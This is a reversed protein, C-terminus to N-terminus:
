EDSEGPAGEGPSDTRERFHALQELLALLQRITDGPHMLRQIDNGLYRLQDATLQNLVALCAPGTHEAYLKRWEGETQATVQYGCRGCRYTLDGLDGEPM